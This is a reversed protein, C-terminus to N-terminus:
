SLLLRWTLPGPYGDADGALAPTARQFAAVNRRTHETFRSGAQYGDGDHYRTYGARILGNDLTVVAPNTRGLVFASRGPFPPVTSPKKRGPLRGLLQHLSVEGPVGDADEGPATGTYGLSLQFAQYARTDADTWRPGPGVKYFKGFGRNVLAEGVATVHAGDAGYGYTLGNITVQYRAVGGAAPVETGTGGQPGTGDPRQAGDQVWAYLRDGPCATPHGDRHGRVRDGASGTNRLWMIADVIGDLMAPPPVVLGSAGLMACVAYDDRNLAATGNAGTLRHAGRGEYVTGHPCVVASYAIDSYNETPHNLHSAQLDRMRGACTSHAATAALSKPVYTGEYHIKVGKTSAVYTLAYRPPRAGWNARTVLQM